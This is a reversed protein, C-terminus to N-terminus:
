RLMTPPTIYITLFLVSHWLQKDDVIWRFLRIIDCVASLNWENEDLLIQSTNEDEM